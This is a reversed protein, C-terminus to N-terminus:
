NVADVMMTYSRTNPATIDDMLKFILFIISITLFILGHTETIGIKNFWVNNQRILVVLGVNVILISLGIIMPLFNVFTSRQTTRKSALYSTVINNTFSDDDIRQINNQLAKKIQEDKVKM